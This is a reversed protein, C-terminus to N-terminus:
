ETRAHREAADMRCGFREGASRSWQWQKGGHKISIDSLNRGAGAWEAPESNPRDHAAIRLECSGQSHRFWVVDAEHRMEGCTVEIAGGASRLLVLESRMGRRHRIALGGGFDEVAVPFANEVGFGFVLATTCIEPELAYTLQPAPVREGYRPALWGGLPHTEGQAITPRGLGTGRAIWLSENEAELVVFDHAGVHARVDPAVQFRLRVESDPLPRPLRDYLIWCEGVVHIIGRRYGDYSAPGSMEYEVWALGDGTALGRCQVRAELERDRFDGRLAGLPDIGDITLTNHASPGAFYARGPAHTPDEARFRYSWTGADIFFAQAGSTAYVSMLDAHAHGPMSRSSPGPGTRFVVRGSGPTDSHLHFGSDRWSTIGTSAVPNEPKGAVDGSLLWFAREVSAASRPAPSLRPCFLSRYFERLGATACAEEADLPFLPDETANGYAVTLCHPGALEVQLELMRRVRESVSGSVAAGRRASLLLYAVATECAFEHYHLSHEFGGGDEYTQRMLEDVYQRELEEIRTGSPVLQPFVVALYWAAFREVLLHNNPYGTGLRPFLFDIDARVIRLIAARLRIGAQSNSTSSASVFAFAWSLALSRQIVVLSSLYPLASAGSRAFGIWSELIGALIDAPIAEYLIALAFRPAFAFRHPRVSYLVDNGPGTEIRGWSFSSDLVGATRGYVPLGVTRDREVHALASAVWPSKAARLAGALVALRAPNAFFVSGEGFGYADVGVGRKLQADHAFRPRHPKSRQRSM